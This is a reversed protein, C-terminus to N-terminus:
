PLCPEALSLWSPRTGPARVLVVPPETPGPLTQLASSSNSVEPNFVGQLFAGHNAGRHSTLAGVACPNPVRTDVPVGSHAAKGKSFSEKPAPDMGPGGRRLAVSSEVGRAAGEKGAQAHGADRSTAAERSAAAPHDRSAAAPHDLSLSITRVPRPLGGMARHAGPGGLPHEMTLARTDAGTPQRPPSSPSLFSSTTRPCPAGLHHCAAKPASAVGLATPVLPAAAAVGMASALGLATPVLPPAAAVGMASALAAAASAQRRLSVRGTDADAGPPNGTGWDGFWAASRGRALRTGPPFERAIWPGGGAPGGASLQRGQGAWSAAGPVQGQEASAHSRPTGCTADLGVGARELKEERMRVDQVPRWLRGCAVVPERGGGGGSGSERKRRRLCSGSRGIGHVDCLCFSLSACANRPCHSFHLPVLERPLSPPHSRVQLSQLAGTFAVLVGASDAEACQPLSSARRLISEHSSLAGLGLPGRGSGGVGSARGEGEGQWPWQGQGQGHGQGQGQEPQPGLLRGQTPHQKMQEQWHALPMSGWRYPRSSATEPNPAGDMGLPSPGKSTCSGRSCGAQSVRPSPTAAAGLGLPGLLPLLPSPHPGAGGLAQAEQKEGTSPAEQAPPPKQGAGGAEERRRGIRPGTPPCGSGTSGPSLSLAPALCDDDVLPRTHGPLIPNQLSQMEGASDQPLVLPPPGGAVPELNQAGAQPEQRAYPALTSGETQSCLRQGGPSEERVSSSRTCWAPGSLHSVEIM